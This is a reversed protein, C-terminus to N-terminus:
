DSSSDDGSENESGTSENTTENNDDICLDAPSEIFLM